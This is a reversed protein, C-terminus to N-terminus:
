YIYEDIVEGDATVLKLWDHDEHLIIKEEEYFTGMWVRWERSFFDDDNLYKIYCSHYTVDSLFEHCQYDNYRIPPRDSPLECRSLSIIYDQCRSTLHAIDRREKYLRPCNKSIPPSFVTSIYGMCKNLRFDAGNASRWAYINVYDGSSLVIDTKQAPTFGSYWGIAQPIIYEGTKSQIKWGTVNVSRGSGSARIQVRLPRSISGFSVSAYREEELTTPPPNQISPSQTAPPTSAEQSPQSPVGLVGQPLEISTLVLYGGALALIMIIVGFINSANM